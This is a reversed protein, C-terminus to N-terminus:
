LGWLTVIIGFHFYVYPAQSTASQGPLGQAHRLLLLLLLFLFISLMEVLPFYISNPLETIEKYMESQESNCHAKM